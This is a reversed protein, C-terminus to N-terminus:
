STSSATRVADLPFSPGYPCYLRSQEPRFQCSRRGDYHLQELLQEWIKPYVHCDRICWDRGYEVNEGCTLNEHFAWVAFIKSQSIKERSGKIIRFNGSICYAPALLTDGCSGVIIAVKSVSLMTHDRMREETTHLSRYSMQKCGKQLPYEEPHMSLVSCGERM